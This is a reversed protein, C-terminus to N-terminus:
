SQESLPAPRRFPEPIHSHDLHARAQGASAAPIWMAVPFSARLLLRRQPSRLGGELGEATAVASKLLQRMESDDTMDRMISQILQWIFPSLEPGKKAM